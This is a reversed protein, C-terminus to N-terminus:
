RVDAIARRRAAIVVILCAGPLVVITEWPLAPSQLTLLGPWIGLPFLVFAVWHTVGVVAAIAALAIRERRNCVPWVATLVFVALLPMSWTIPRGILLLAYALAFVESFQLPRDRLLGAAVMLLLAYVALSLAQAAEFSLGANLFLQLPARNWLRMPWQSDLPLAFYQFARPDAFYSLFDARAADPWRITELLILGASACAAIVVTRRFRGDSRAALGGILAFAVFLLVFQPKVVVVTALPVAALLGHQRWLLWCGLMSMAILFIEINGGLFVAILDISVAMPALWLLSRTESLYQWALCLAITVGTLAVLYTLASLGTHHLFVALGPPYLYPGAVVDPTVAAAPGPAFLAVASRHMAQWTEQVAAAGPYPSGTAALRETAEMYSRYDVPVEGVDLTITKLGVALGIWWLALLTSYIISRLM